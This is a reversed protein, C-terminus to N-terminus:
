NSSIVEIESSTIIPKIKCVDKYMDFIFRSHERKILELANLLNNRLDEDSIDAKFVAIENTLMFMVFDFLSDDDLKTLVKDYFPHNQNIFFNYKGNDQTLHYLDDYQSLTDVVNISGLWNSSKKENSISRDRKKVGSTNKKNETDTDKNTKDEEKKKNIAQKNVLNIKKDDIINKAKKTLDASLKKSSEDKTDKLRDNEMQKFIRYSPNIHRFLFDRFEEDLEKGDTVMKNFTAITINADMEGGYNVIVRFSSSHGDGGISGRNIAGYPKLGGGVLRNNRFFYIGCTKQNTPIDYSDNDILGTEQYLYYCKISIPCDKYTTEISNILRGEFPENNKNTGGIYSIKNIEKGEVLIKTTPNQEIFLSYNTSLRKNFTQKFSEISKNSFRDIKELIIVTGNDSNRVQQFFLDIEESPINEMEIKECIVENAELLVDLDFVYKFLKNERQKTLLVIRKAMSLAATKAGSGYGGLNIFEKFTFGLKFFNDANMESIGVGDDAIILKDIVKGEEKSKIFSFNCFTAQVDKELSNDSFECLADYNDYGVNRLANIYFAISPSSNIFKKSM